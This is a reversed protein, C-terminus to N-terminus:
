CRRRGGASTAPSDGPTRRRGCGRRTSPSRRRRCAEREGVRQPDHPAAAAVHLLRHRDAVPAIAAIRPRSASFTACAQASAASPSTTLGAFRFPAPCTTIAPARSATARAPSRALASPAFRTTGSGTLAGTGSRASSAPRPDGRARVARAAPRVVRAHRDDGVDVGLRLAGRARRDLRQDRLHRRRHAPFGDDPAKRRLADCRINLHTRARDQAAQHALDVAVRRDDLKPPGPRSEAALRPPRRVSINSREPLTASTVPADRPM